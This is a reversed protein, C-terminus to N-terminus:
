NKIFFILISFAAGVLASVIAGIITRKLWLDSEKLTDVIRFLASVRSEIKERWIDFESIKAELVKIEKTFNMNIEKVEVTVRESIKQIDEKLVKENQKLQEIEWKSKQIQELDKPSRETM